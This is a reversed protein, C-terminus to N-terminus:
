AFEEYRKKLNAKARFLLQNVANANMELHQGIEEISYDYYAWLVIAIRQKPPLAHVMSKIHKEEDIELSSSIQAFEEINEDLEWHHQDKKLVDYSCRKVITYFYTKLSSDGSFQQYSVWLKMFADQVIEEAKESSGVLRWALRIADASLLNVLEKTAVVNGLVADQLLNKESAWRQM